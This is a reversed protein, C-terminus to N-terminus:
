EQVTHNTPSFATLLEEAAPCADDLESLSGDQLLFDINDCTRSDYSLFPLDLSELCLADNVIEDEFPKACLLEQESPHIARYTEAGGVAVQSSRESPASCAQRGSFSLTSTPFPLAPPPSLAPSFIEKPVLSPSPPSGALESRVVEEATQCVLRRLRREVHGGRPIFTRQLRSDDKRHVTKSRVCVEVIHRTPVFRRPGGRSGNIQTLPARELFWTEAEHSPSLPPLAQSLPEWLEQSAM